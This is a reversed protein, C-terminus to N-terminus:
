NIVTLENLHWKERKGDPLVRVIIFPIVNNKLELNSIEVASLGEINKIMPKAGQILQKRRESLIRVREYKTLIPKTIRDKPDVDNITVQVNDDDFYGSSIDNEYQFTDSTTKNKTFNYLCTDDEEIEIMDDEKLSITKGEGTKETEDTEDEMKELIDEDDSKLQEEIEVDTDDDSTELKDDESVEPQDGELVTESEGDQLATEQDSLDIETVTEDVSKLAKGGHKSADQKKNVIINKNKKNKINKKSITKDKPM